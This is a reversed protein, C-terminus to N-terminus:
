NWIYIKRYRYTASLKLFELKDAKVLNEDIYRGGRALQWLHVPGWRCPPIRSPKPRSSLHPQAPLAASLCQRQIVRLVELTLFGLRSKRINIVHQSCSWPPVRKLKILNLEEASISLNSHVQITEETLPVSESTRTYLRIKDEASESFADDITFDPKKFPMKLKLVSNCSHSHWIGSSDTPMKQHQAM